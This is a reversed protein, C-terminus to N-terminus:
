VCVCWCTYLNLVCMYLSLSLPVVSLRLCPCLKVCRYCYTTGGVCLNTVCVTMERTYFRNSCNCGPYVISQCIDTALAEIAHVYVDDADSDGADDNDDDDDDDEDKCM